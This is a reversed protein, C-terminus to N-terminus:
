ELIFEVISKKKESITHHWIHACFDGCALAAKMRDVDIYSLIPKILEITANTFQM